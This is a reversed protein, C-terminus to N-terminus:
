PQIEQAIDQLASAIEMLYLLSPDPLDPEGRAEALVLRASEVWMLNHMVYGSVLPRPIHQDLQDHFERWTM